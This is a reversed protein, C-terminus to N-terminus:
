TTIPARKRLRKSLKRFRSCGIASAAILGIIPLAGVDRVLGIVIELTIAMLFALVPSLLGAVAVISFKTWTPFRGMAALGM